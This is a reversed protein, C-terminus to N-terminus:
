AKVARKRSKLTRERVDFAEVLRDLSDIRYIMDQRRKGKAPPERASVLLVPIRLSQRLPVTATKPFQTPSKM